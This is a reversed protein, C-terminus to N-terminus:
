LFKLDQRRTSGHSGGSSYMRRTCAGGNGALRLEREPEPLWLATTTQPAHLVVLTQVGEMQRAKLLDGARFCLGGGQTAQAFATDENCAPRMGIHFRTIRLTGMLVQM